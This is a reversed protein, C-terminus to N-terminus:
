DTEPFHFEEGEAIVGVREFWDPGMEGHLPGSCPAHNSEGAFEAYRKLLAIERRRSRTRQRPTRM